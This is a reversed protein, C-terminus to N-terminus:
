GCYSAKAKKFFVSHDPPFVVQLGVDSVPWYYGDHGHEFYVNAGNMLVSVGDLDILPGHKGGVPADVKFTAVASGHSRVSGSSELELSDGNASVYCGVYTQRPLYDEHFHSTALIWALWMAFLAGVLLWAWVTPKKRRMM